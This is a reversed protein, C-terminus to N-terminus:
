PSQNDAASQETEVLRTEIEERAVKGEADVLKAELEKRTVADQLSKLDPDVPAPIASKTSAAPDASVQAQSARGGAGGLLVGLAGVDMNSLRILAGTEGFTATTGHHQFLDSRIAIVALESRSDVVQASVLSRLRFPRTSMQDDNPISLPGDIEYVALRTLRPRRFVIKTGQASKETASNKKQAETSADAGSRDVGVAGGLKDMAGEDNPDNSPKADSQDVRVVVVGLRDMAEKVDPTLSGAFTVKEEATACVPLEDVGVTYSLKQTWPPFHSTRWAEFQAELVAAEGRAKALADELLKLDKDKTEDPSGAFTKAKEAFATELADIAQSLEARRAATKPYAAAFVEDASKPAGEPEAAPQVGGEGTPQETAEGGEEVKLPLNSVATLTASIVKVGAELVQAGVGTTTVGTASLREDPALTIDFARDEHKKDFVLKLPQATPDAEAAVSIDSVHERKATLDDATKITVVGTINVVTRALRYDVVQEEDENAM